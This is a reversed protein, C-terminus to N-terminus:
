CPDCHRCVSKLYPTLGARETLDDLDITEGPGLLVIARALGFPHGARVMAGIAKEREKSDSPRVAAFPGIRRKRAFRLAADVRELDAHDHAAAADEEEVGAVRLTELVRRKGYGRGTLARSKGLAYAADDVFGQASFREAIAAFDAERPGSWGRERVKRALYNRLKARTTAFRGVYRLALENLKDEDLPPLERRPRFRTMVGNKHWLRQGDPFRRRGNGAM